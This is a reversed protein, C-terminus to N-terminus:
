PDGPASDAAFKYILEGDRAYGLKRRILTQLYHDDDRLKHLDSRLKLNDARLGELTAELHSRSRRLAMLDKLGRPSYVCSLSLGCAILGLILGLWERRL